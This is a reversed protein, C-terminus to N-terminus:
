FPFKYGDLGYEKQLTIIDKIVESDLPVGGAKREQYAIHEKEGATYIREQGPMKKSDRLARLIDGTTKKFEDLETFASVDMAMFFHGLKYPVTKGNEMGNLAKMFFGNQLAASLIEVVTAYGYGKYGGQEEGIGGLPTLAAYGKVLDDLVVVPDTKSKGDNAIVWGEPM